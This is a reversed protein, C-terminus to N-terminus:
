GSCGPQRLEKGIEDIIDCFLISIIVERTRASSIKDVVSIIEDVDGRVSPVEIKSMVKIYQQREDSNV